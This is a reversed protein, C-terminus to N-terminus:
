KLVYVTCRRAGFQYCESTTNMYLDVRNGKILGGTDEATGFGYDYVGDDSVIYLSSGLPIVKPDVAITGIHVVTGTATIGPRGDCSYATGLCSIAKATGAPNEPNASISVEQVPQQVITESLIERTFERGNKYTIRVTQKALGDSGESLYVTKGEPMTADAYTLTQHPLVTDLAVTEHSIRTVEVTMGTYTADDMSCNLTDRSGLTIGLEWLLQEVTRGYTGVVSHKGDCVVTVVQLRKVIIEANGNDAITTEYTDGPSLTIGAESLIHLPQASASLITTKQDGDIITYTNEALVPQAITAGLIAIAICIILIKAVVQLNNESYTMKRVIQM